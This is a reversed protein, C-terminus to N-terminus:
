SARGEAKAIVASAMETMVARCDDGAELHAHIQRLVTLLDPAAAILCANAYEAERSAEGMSDCACIPTEDAGYVARSVKRGVKWPGPTHTSRSM